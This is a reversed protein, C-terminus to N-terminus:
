KQEEEDFIRTSAADVVGSLAKLAEIEQTGVTKMDIIEECKKIAKYYVGRSIKDLRKDSYTQPESPNM